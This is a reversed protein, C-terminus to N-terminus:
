VNIAKKYLENAEVSYDKVFKQWETTTIINRVNKCFFLTAMKQLHLESHQLSLTIVECFNDVSLNRTMFRVCEAKLDDIQYKDAAYYLNCVNDSTISDAKGTYLYLLFIEFAATSCDPINVVGTSSEITHPKFMCAFVPSRVKLINKHARFVRDEVKLLVDSSEEDELLSKLNQLLKKVGLSFVSLNICICQM